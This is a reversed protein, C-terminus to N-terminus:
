AMGIIVGLFPRTPSSLVVHIHALRRRASSVGQFRRRSKGISGVESGGHRAATGRGPSRGNFPCRAGQQMSQMSAAAARKRDM